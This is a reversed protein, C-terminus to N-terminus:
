IYSYNVTTTTRVELVQMYIQPFVSNILNRNIRKILIKM